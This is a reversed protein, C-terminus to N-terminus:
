YFPPEVTKGQQTDFVYNVWSTRAIKTPRSGTKLDHFILQCPVTISVKSPSLYSSYPILMQDNDIRLEVRATGDDRFAWISTVLLMSKTEPDHVRKRVVAIRCEDSAQIMEVDRPNDENIRHSYEVLEGRSHFILWSASSLLVETFPSRECIM